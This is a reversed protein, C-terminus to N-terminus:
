KSWISVNFKAFHVIAIHSQLYVLFLPSVSNIKCPQSNAGAVIAAVHLVASSDDGVQICNFELREGNM